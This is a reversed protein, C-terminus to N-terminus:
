RSRDDSVARAALEDLGDATATPDFLHPDHPVSLERYLWGEPSRVASSASGLHVPETFTAM